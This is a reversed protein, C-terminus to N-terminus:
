INPVAFKLIYSKYKSMSTYELLVSLKDTKAFVNKM